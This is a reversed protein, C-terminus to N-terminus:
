GRQGRRTGPPGAVATLEFTMPPIVGPLWGIERALPVRSRYLVFGRDDKVDIVLANVETRRAVGIRGRSSVASTVSASQAVSPAHADSRKASTQVATARAATPPM